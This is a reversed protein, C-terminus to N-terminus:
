ADSPGLGRRRGSVQKTRKALLAPSGSLSAGAARSSPAPQLERPRDFLAVQLRPFSKYSFPQFFFFYFLHTVPGSGTRCGKPKPCRRTSPLPTRDM